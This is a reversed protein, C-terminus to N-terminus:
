DRLFYDSGERMLFMQLRSAIFVSDKVIEGYWSPILSHSGSDDLNSNLSKRFAVGNPHRLDYLGFYFTRKYTLEKSNSKNDRNYVDFVVMENNAIKKAATAVAGFGQKEFSFDLQSVDNIQAENM